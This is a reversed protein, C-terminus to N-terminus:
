HFNARVSGNLFRTAVGFNFVVTKVMRQRELYKNDMWDANGLVM